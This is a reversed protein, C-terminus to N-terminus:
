FEFNQLAHLLIFVEKRMFRLKFFFVKKFDVLRWGNRSESIYRWLRHLRRTQRWWQQRRSRENGVFFSRSALRAAHEPFASVASGPGSIRRFCGLPWAESQSTGQRCDWSHRWRRSYTIVTWYTQEVIVHPWVYFHINYYLHYPLCNHRFNLFITVGVQQKEKFTETIYIGAHSQMHHYLSTYPFMNNGDQVNAKDNCQIEKWFMENQQWVISPLPSFEKNQVSNVKRTLAAHETPRKWNCLLWFLKREGAVSVFEAYIVELM